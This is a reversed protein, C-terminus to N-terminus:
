ETIYDEPGTVFNVNYFPDGRRITDAHIDQFLVADSAGESEALEYSDDVRLIPTAIAINRYGSNIARVAADGFIYQPTSFDPDFGGLLDLIKRDVMIMGAPLASVERNCALSGAFGDEGLMFRKMAPVLGHQGTLLGAAGVRGDNRYLHPAVFGVDDLEAYLLLHDLWTEDMVQVLPDIFVVYRGSSVAMARQIEAVVPSTSPVIATSEERGNAPASRRVRAATTKKQAQRNPGLVTVSAFNRGQQSLLARCAKIAKSPRDGRILVDISPYVRRPKPWIALRHPLHEYPGAEGQFGIREFHANVAAAQLPEIKGKSNADHAISGPISRWQYLIKPVHIIRKTHEGVRLMFEFDQVRDFSPDFGGVAVAIERRVMLLHGIYMVGSLLVPSWSPKYFASEFTDWASVYAQDSYAADARAENVARVMEEIASPVLVDDHDVLAVFEGGALKLGANTAESIGSNHDLRVQRIRPDLRATREIIAWVHQTPSGDDVIILEWNSYSQARVSDIAARFCREDSDYAPMIVSVLPVAALPKQKSARVPLIARAPVPIYTAHRSVLNPDLNSRFQVYDTLPDIATERALASTLRQVAGDFLPHPHRRMERPETLYHVLPNIGQTALEPHLWQYYRCDFMPHPNRCQQGGAEVFHRLPGIGAAAVDPNNRLYFIPDFLPHSSRGERDGVLLFHIFEEMGGEVVDPNGFRYWLRDFLPHPSVGLEAGIHVYHSLPDAAATDQDDMVQSLYFKTQFLPHPDRDERAGHDLYHCLPDARLEKVDPYRSLYWAADFLLAHAHKDATGDLLAAFKPRSQTNDNSALGEHQEQSALRKENRGQMVYHVFPNIGSTAVDPYRSLYFATDFYECPNRGEKWGTCLYHGLPDVGAEAVDKYSTLYFERDFDNHIATYDEKAIAAKKEHRDYARLTVRNEFRGYKLYHVFPDMDSAKVDPYNEMYFVPDFDRRPMFGLKSGIKLYHEIPDLQSESVATTYTALYFDKDFASKIVDYSQRHKAFGISRIFRLFGVYSIRADQSIIQALSM